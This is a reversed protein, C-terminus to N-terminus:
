IVFVHVKKAKATSYIKEFDNKLEAKWAEVPKTIIEKVGVEPLAPTIGAFAERTHIAIGPNVLLMRYVGLDLKIEEPLEGRGASFCPQNIMFFPCDSGLASSFEMLQKGSLNLGYIENLMKLTFAADASGGGLGSGAPIVKHLHMQVPPVRPFKQKILHYAKLCLNDDKNGEIALGSLSFSIKTQDTSEKQPITELIDHVAVPYFVTELEHFGDGRKRLVNLGLNIKCNPFAIM